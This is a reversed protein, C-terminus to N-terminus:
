LTAMKETLEQTRRPPLPPPVVGSSRSAVRSLNRSSAVSEYDSSEPSANASNAASNAKRPRPPPLLHDQWSRNVLAAREEPDLDAYMEAAEMERRRAREAKRRGKVREEVM